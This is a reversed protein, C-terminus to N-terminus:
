EYHNFNQYDFGIHNNNSKGIQRMSESAIVEDITRGYAKADFPDIINKNFAALDISTSYRMVTEKVQNFIDEDSIYNRMAPKFKVAFIFSKRSM